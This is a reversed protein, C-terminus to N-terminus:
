WKRQVQKKSIGYSQLFKNIDRPQEFSCVEHYEGTEIHKFGARQTGNILSGSIVPTWLDLDFDQTRTDKHMM